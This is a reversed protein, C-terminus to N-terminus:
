RPAPRGANLRSVYDLLRDALTTAEDATMSHLVISVENNESSRNLKNTRGRIVLAPARRGDGWRMATPHVWVSDASAAAECRLNEFAGHGYGKILLNM